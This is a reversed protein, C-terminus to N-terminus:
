LQKGNLAHIFGSEIESTAILSDGNGGFIKVFVKVQSEAQSNVCGLAFCEIAFVGDVIPVVFSHAGFCLIDGETSAGVDVVDLDCLRDADCM